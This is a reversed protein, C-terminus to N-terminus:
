GHEPNATWARAIQEADVKHFLTRPEGIRHNPKLLLRGADDWRQEEVEGEAALEMWIMRSTNPMFPYILIALSRVLQICLNIASAAEARERKISHWPESESLYENGSRALEIVANLADRFRFQEMLAGISTPANEIEKILKMGAESYDGPEPVLGNFNSKTFTLTRHIFNGLIDNLETNVRREFEKWTFNADKAEPRISTLVFRWYEPEAIKLADDMWVGIRRSKSFKGQGEYLIFETSSVQWPLIYDQHTAMLLAPLIITHFPINDKGIFHVNRTEKSLWYKKWLDPDGRREGLEISASIYGLVAEMWVYITKGESGPFPSPVGWKNDRTLARPRLGERLWRLSFNRANDPLQKNENLYRKIGTEFRPLDFFWHTSLKITPTSGCFVCRPKVLETPDLVRGCNECQDGRAGEFGCHPCTGEVFRDPLFRGCRDCSPLEVEKKFIYGNDYLKLYFAQTFKIHTPTETRTYNDFSISYKELLDLILTHYHDTLEKPEIGQRLAEVEIPTGHEDSGTVAIVDEGRLRLYRTFIDASLLHIFTGLHPVSNVYPWAANM